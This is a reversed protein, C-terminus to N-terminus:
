EGQDGALYQVIVRDNNASGDIYIRSLDFGLRADCGLYTGDGHTFNVTTGKAWPIWTNDVDVNGIYVSAGANGSPIHVTFDTTFLRTPSLPVAIGATVVTPDVELKRLGITRVSM